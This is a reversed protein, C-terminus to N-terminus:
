VVSGQPSASNPAIDENDLSDLKWLFHQASSLLFRPEFINESISFHEGM